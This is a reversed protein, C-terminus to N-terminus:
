QTTEVIGTGSTYNLSVPYIISYKNIGDNRVGSDFSDGFSIVRADYGYWTYIDMGQNAAGFYNDISVVPGSTWINTRDGINNEFHNMVFRQVGYMIKAGVSNGEITNGFIFGNMSGYAPVEYGIINERIKNNIVSVANSRDNNYSNLQIGSGWQEIISNEIVGKLGFITRIGIGTQAKGTIYCDRIFWNAVGFSGNNIDIGVSNSSAATSVISLKEVSSGSSQLVLMPFGGGKIVSSPGDGVFQIIKSGTKISSSINITTNASIYIIGGAAPLANVAASLNNGYSRVDIGWGWTPLALFLIVLILRSIMKVMRKDGPLIDGERLNGSLEKIKESQIENMNEEKSAKGSQAKRCHNDLGSYDELHREEQHIHHGLVFKSDPMVVFIDVLARTGDIINGGIM